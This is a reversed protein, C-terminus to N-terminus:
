VLGMADLEKRIREVHDRGGQDVAEANLVTVKLRNADNYTETRASVRLRYKRFLPSKTAASFAAPDPGSQLETLESAPRRMIQNGSEDFATFWQNGTM